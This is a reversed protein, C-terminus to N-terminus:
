AATPEPAFTAATTHTYSHLIKPIHAETTAIANLHMAWGWDEGYNTAPFHIRKALERRWACVHWAARKTVRNPAYIANQGQLRFEITSLVGNYSSAQLFTVVDPSHADIAALIDACYDDTVDDDDDVFAVYRGRAAQVLADRKEGISWQRNDALVLWEVRCTALHPALRVRLRILDAFREPVSPTLISLTPADPTM